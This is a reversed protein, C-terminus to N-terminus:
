KQEIKKWFDNFLTKLKVIGNYTVNRKRVFIGLNTAHKLKKTSSDCRFWRGIKSIDGRFSVRFMKLDYTRLLQLFENPLATLNFVRFM